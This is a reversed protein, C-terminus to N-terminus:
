DKFAIGKFDNDVAFSIIGEDMDLMVSIYSGEQIVGFNRSNIYSYSTGKNYFSGDAMIM